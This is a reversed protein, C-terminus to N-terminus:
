LKLHQETKIMRALGAVHEHIKAHIKHRDTMLEHYKKVARELKKQYTQREGLSRANQYKSTYDKADEHTSRIKKDIRYLKKTYYYIYGAQHIMSGM